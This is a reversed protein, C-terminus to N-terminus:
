LMLSFSEDNTKVVATSKFLEKLAQKDRMLFQEDESKKTLNNSGNIVGNHHKMANKFFFELLLLLLLLLDNDYLTTSSIKMIKNEITLSELSIDFKNISWIYLEIMENLPDSQSNAFSVLFRVYILSTTLLRSRLESSLCLSDNFNNLSTSKPM